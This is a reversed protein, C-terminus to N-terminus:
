HNFRPALSRRFGGCTFNEGSVAAAEIRAYRRRWLETGFESRQIQQNSLSYRTLSYTGAHKPDAFGNM